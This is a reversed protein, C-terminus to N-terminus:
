ALADLLEGVVLEEEVRRGRQRMVEGLTSDWSATVPWGTL